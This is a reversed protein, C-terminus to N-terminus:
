GKVGELVIKGIRTQDVGQVGRLELKMSTDSPLYADAGASFDVTQFGPNYVQGSGTTISHKLNITADPSGNRTTLLASTQDVKLVEPTPKQSLYQRVDLTSENKTPTFYIRARPM